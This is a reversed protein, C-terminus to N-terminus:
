GGGGAGTGEVEVPEPVVAQRVIKPLWREEPISKAWEPAPLSFSSMVKAITKLDEEPIKDVKTHGEDGEANDLEIQIAEPIMPIPMTGDKSATHLYGDYGQGEREDDEEPADKSRNRSSDDDDGDSEIRGYGVDRGSSHYIDEDQDKHEDDDDMENQDLPIYGFPQADEEADSDDRGQEDSSSDHKVDDLEMDQHQYFENFTSSPDDLSRQLRSSVGTGGQFRSPYEQQQQQEFRDVRDFQEDLDLEELMRDVADLQEQGVEYTLEDGQDDTQMSIQQQQQEQSTPFVRRLAKALMMESNKSELVPDHLEAWRLRCEWTDKGPINTATLIWNKQGYQAVCELLTSDQEPTWVSNKIHNKFSFEYASRCQDATWTKNPMAAAIEDWNPSFEINGTGNDSNSSSNSNNNNNNNNNDTQDQSNRQRNYQEEQANVNSMLTEYEQPSMHLGKYTLTTFKHCISKPMRNPLYKSSILPWNRGVESVARELTEIEEPSWKGSMIGGDRARMRLYYYHHKYQAPTIKLGMISAVKSWDVKSKDTTQRAEEALKWLQDSDEKRWIMNICEKQSEAFAQVKENFEAENSSDINATQKKFFAECQAPTRKPFHSALKTWDAGYRLFLRWFSGREGRYWAKEKPVRTKADLAAWRMRCQEPSHTKLATSLEEWKTVGHKLVHQILATEEHITWIVPSGRQIKYYQHRLQEPTVKAMDRGGLEMMFERLIKKWDEEGHEKVLRMLVKSQLMDFQRNRDEGEPKAIKKWKTQCKISDLGIIGGIKAWSAGQAVLDEMQQVKEDTWFNKLVPDLLAIYRRHCSRHPLGLSSGIVPWSAGEARMKIIEQDIEPTFKPKRYRYTTKDTAPLSTDTNTSEPDHEEDQISGSASEQAVTSIDPVPSPIPARYSRALSLRSSSLTPTFQSCGQLLPIRPQSTPKVIFVGRMRSAAVLRPLM